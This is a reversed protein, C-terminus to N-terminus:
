DCISQLDRWEEDTLLAQAQFGRAAAERQWDYSELIRASLTPHSLFHSHVGEADGHEDSLRQFMDGLAGPAIQAAEMISMAFADAEIEAAQSYQAEILRETLLLVMAGGAFDGFLLGLVGISGASRLAHRTPDRSAVHGIEHAFVSAVEEPTDAAEILGKFFVIHGGPLAFANVMDHDLVHVTMEVPLEAYDQLRAGMKTLAMQGAPDDCIPLEGIGTEDLATRIQGLTAEGLAQEGKPPIFEALQDAMLPVLVFIILAVSAVAGFAWAAVKSRNVHSHRRGLNPCRKALRMEDTILRATPDSALALVLESQDAQDRLRRIAALPWQVQTGAYEIVLAQRSEEIRIRAPHPRASQGDFYTGLAGIATPREGVRITTQDSM